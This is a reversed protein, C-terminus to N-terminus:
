DHVPSFTRVTTLAKLAALFAKAHAFFHEVNRTQVAQDGVIRNQKRSSESAPRASQDLLRTPTHSLAAAPRRQLRGSRRHSRGRSCYRSSSSGMLCRIQKGGDSDSSAILAVSVAATPIRESTLYTRGRNSTALASGAAHIGSGGSSPAISTRTAQSKPAHNALFPLTNEVLKSTNAVRWRRWCPRRPIVERKM